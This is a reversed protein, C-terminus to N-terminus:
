LAMAMDERSQLVDSCSAERKEEFELSGHNDELRLPQGNNASRMSKHKQKPEFSKLLPYGDAFSDKNTESGRDL